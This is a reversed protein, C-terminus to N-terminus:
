SGRSLSFVVLQEAEERTKGGYRVVCNVIDQCWLVAQEIHEEDVDSLLERWGQVNMTVIRELFDRRCAEHSYFALPCHSQGAGGSPQRAPHIPRAVPRSFPSQLQALLCANVIAARPQISCGRCTMPQVNVAAFVLGQKNWFSQYAKLARCCCM